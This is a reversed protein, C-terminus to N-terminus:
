LGRGEAFDETLGFNEENFEEADEFLSAQAISIAMVITAVKMTM